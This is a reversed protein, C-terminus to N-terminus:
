TRRDEGNHVSHLSPFRCYPSPDFLSSTGWLSAIRLYRFNRWGVDHHQLTIHALAAIMGVNDDLRIAKPQKWRQQFGHVNGRWLRSIRCYRERITLLSHWRKMQFLWMEDKIYSQSSHCAKSDTRIPQQQQEFQLPDQRYHIVDGSIWKLLLVDFVTQDTNRSPRCSIPQQGSTWLPGCRNYKYWTSM